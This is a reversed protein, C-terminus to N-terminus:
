PARYAGAGTTSAAMWGCGASLGVPACGSSPKASTHDATASQATLAVTEFTTSSEAPSEAIRRASTRAVPEASIRIAATAITGTLDADPHSADIECIPRCMEHGPPPCVLQQAQAPQAFSLTAIFAVVVGGAIVLARTLAAPRHTTERVRM